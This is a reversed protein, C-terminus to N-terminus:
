VSWCEEVGRSSIRFQLDKHVAFLHGRDALAAAEALQGQDVPRGASGRHAGFGVDLQPADVPVAVPADQHPRGDPLALHVLLEQRPHRNQTLNKKLPNPNALSNTSKPM